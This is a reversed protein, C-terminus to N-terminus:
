KNTPLLARCILWCLGVGPLAILALKAFTDASFCVAWGAQLLVCEYYIDRVGRRYYLSEMWALGLGLLLMGFGVGVHGFNVYMEFLYNMGVSTNPGFQIGTYKSVFEAGGLRYPKDEWFVRPIIAIVIDLYSEGYGFPQYEPTHVMAAAMLGSFDGRTRYYYVLSMDETTKPNLFIDITLSLREMTGAQEGIATRLQGRGALWYSAPIFLLIAIVLMFPIYIARIRVAFIAICLMVMANTFFAGAHGSISAFIINKVIYLLSAFILPSWRGGYAAHLCLMVMGTDVLAATQGLIAGVTPLQQAFVVIPLCALGIGILWWALMQQTNLRHPYAMLQAFGSPILTKRNTLAPYIWYAALVYTGLGLLALHVAPEIPAAAFRLDETDSFLDGLLPGLLFFMALNMGYMFRLGIGLGGERRISLWWFGLVLVYGLYTLTSM